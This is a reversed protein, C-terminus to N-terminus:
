WNPRYNDQMFTITQTRTNVGSDMAQCLRGELSNSRFTLIVDALPETSLKIAVGTVGVPLNRFTGLRSNFSYKPCGSPADESTVLGTSPSIQIGAVDNDELMVEVDDLVTDHFPSDLSTALAPGLKIPITRTGVALDNEEPVVHIVRPTNWNFETFKIGYRQLKSFGKADALDETVILTTGPLPGVQVAITVATRTPPSEFMEITFSASDGGEVLSLSLPSVLIKPRVCFGVSEVDWEGLVCKIETNGTSTYYDQPCEVRCILVVWACTHKHHPSCCIVLTLASTLVSSWWYPRNHLLSCCQCFRGRGIM